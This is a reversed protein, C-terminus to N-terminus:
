ERYSNPTLKKSSRSFPVFAVLIEFMGTRTPEKDLAQFDINKILPEIKQCNRRAFDILGMHIIHLNRRRGGDTAISAALSQEFREPNYATDLIELLISFFAGDFLHEPKKVRLDTERGPPLLVLMSDAWELLAVQTAQSNISPIM